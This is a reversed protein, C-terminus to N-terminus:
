HRFPGPGQIVFTGRLGAFWAVLPFCIIGSFVEIISGMLAAGRCSRGSPEVAQNSLLGIAALAGARAIGASYFSVGTIFNPITTACWCFNRSPLELFRLGYGSSLM